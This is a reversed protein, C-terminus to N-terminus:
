VDWRKMGTQLQAKAGELNNLYGSDGQTAQLSTLAQQEVEQRSLNTKSTVTVLGEVTEGDVTGKISVTYSFAKKINTIAVPLRGVNPRMNPALFKLRVQAKDWEKAAGVFKSLTSARIGQGRPDTSAIISQMVAQPQGERVARQLLGWNRRLKAVGRFDRLAM